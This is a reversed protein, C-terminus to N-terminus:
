LNLLISDLKQTVIPDRNYSEPASTLDEEPIWTNDSDPYGKWHVYFERKPLTSDGEKIPRVDLLKEVEYLKEGKETKKRKTSVVQETSERKRSRTNRGPSGIEQESSLEENRKNRREDKLRERICDNPDIGAAKLERKVKSIAMDDVADIYADM